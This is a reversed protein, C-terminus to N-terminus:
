GVEHLQEGSSDGPPTVCCQMYCTCGALEEPIQLLRFRSFCRAGLTRSLLGHLQVERERVSM